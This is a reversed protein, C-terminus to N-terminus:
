GFAARFFVGALAFCVLGLIMSLVIIFNSKMRERPNM